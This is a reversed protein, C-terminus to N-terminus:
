PRMKRLDAYALVIKKTGGARFRVVARANKGYGSITVIEGPGLKGHFVMDGAAFDVGTPEPGAAAKLATEAVAAEGGAPAIREIASSPVEELFPSPRSLRTEGAYTRRGAWSLYLREEARTMGVFFLRREEEDDRSSERRARAHPVIGDELGIMMVVPFELGKASHLSMLTVANSTDQLSDVDSVLAVRELFGAVDAAPDTADYEAAASVLEELNALREANKDDKDDGFEKRFGAADIARRVAEAATGGCAARIRDM